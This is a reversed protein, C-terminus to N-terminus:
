IKPIAIIAKIGSTLIKIRYDFNNYDPEILRYRWSTKTEHVKKIPKFNHSRIWRGSSIKSYYTKDFILSQIQTSM